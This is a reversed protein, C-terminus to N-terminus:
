ASRAAIRLVDAALVGPWGWSVPDLVRLKPLTQWANLAEAKVLVGDMTEASQRIIEGVLAALAEQAADERAKVAVYGSADQVRDCEALYARLQGAIAERESAQLLREAIQDPTLPKRPRITLVSKRLRKAERELSPLDHLAVPLGNVTVGWGTLDRAREAGVWGGRYAIIAEPISPWLPAWERVVARLAKAAELYEGHVGPLDDALRLLEANEPTVPQVSALATSTAAATSAAALGLLLRRRNLTANLAKLM